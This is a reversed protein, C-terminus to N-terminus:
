NLFKKSSYTMITPMLLSMERDKLSLNNIRKHFEFMKQQAAVGILRAFFGRTLQFNEAIMFYCEGGIFSRTIKLSLLRKALIQLIIKVM